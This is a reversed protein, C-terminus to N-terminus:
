LMGCGGLGVIVTWTLQDLFGFRVELFILLRPGVVMVSVIWNEGSIPADAKVVMWLSFWCSAVRITSM